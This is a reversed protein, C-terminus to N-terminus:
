PLCELSFPAPPAEVPCALRPLHCPAQRRDLVAPAGFAVKGDEGEVGWYISGRRGRSNVVTVRFYQRSNSRLEIEPSEIWSRQGKTTMWLAGDRLDVDLEIEESGRWGLTDSASSFDWSYLVKDGAADAHAVGLWVALLVFVIQTLRM